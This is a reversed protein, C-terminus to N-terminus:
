KKEDKAPETGARRGRWDDRGDFEYREITDGLVMRLTLGKNMLAGMPVHDVLSEAYREVSEGNVVVAPIVNPRFFTPSSGRSRFGIASRNTAVWSSRNMFPM